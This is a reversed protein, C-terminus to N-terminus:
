QMAKEAYLAYDRFDNANAYFRNMSDETAFMYLRGEYVICFDPTGVVKKGESFLVPDCGEMIPTYKQPDSYFEQVSAQSSLTYTKGQYTVSYRPNGQVWNESRMLTVPCFGELAVPPTAFQMEAARRSSAASFDDNVSQGYRSNEPVPVACSADEGTTRPHGYRINEPAQIEPMRRTEMPPFEMEQNPDASEYSESPKMEPLPTAGPEPRTPGYGDSRGENEQNKLGDLVQQVSIGRKKQTEFSAPNVQEPGYHNIAHKAGNQPEENQLFDTPLIQPPELSGDPMVQGPDFIPPDPFLPTNTDEPKPIPPINTDGPWLSSNPRISPIASPEPKLELGLEPLTGFDERSGPSAPTPEGVKRKAEPTVPAAGIAQPFNNNFRQQNPWERWKTETVGFDRANPACPMGGVAPPYQYRPVAIEGKKESSVMTPTQRSPPSGAGLLGASLVGGLLVGGVTYRLIQGHKKSM